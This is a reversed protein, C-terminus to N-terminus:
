NRERSGFNSYIIVDVQGTVTYPHLTANFRTVGAVQLVFDFKLAGTTTDFSYNSIDLKDAPIFETSSLDVGSRKFILKDDENLVLEDYLTSTSETGDANKIKDFAGGNEGYQYYAFAGGRINFAYEAVTNAATTPLVRGTFADFEFEFHYKADNEAPSIPWYATIDNFNAYSSFSFLSNGPLEKSFSFWMDPYALFARLNERLVSISNKEYKLVMTMHRDAGPEGYRTFEILSIGTQPVKVVGGKETALNYNFAESFATGDRRNGSVTGKIGGATTIFTSPGNTGDTGNTGNTGNTGDKGDVGNSGDKGAPGPDGDKGACNALFVIALLMLLRVVHKSTKNM